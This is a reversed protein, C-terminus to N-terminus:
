FSIHPNWSKSVQPIILGQLIHVVGPVSSVMTTTLGLCREVLAQSSKLILFIHSPVLEKSVKPTILGQLICSWPRLLGYYYNFRFM